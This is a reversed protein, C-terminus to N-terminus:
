KFYETVNLLSDIDKRGEKHSSLIESDQTRSREEKQHSSSKPTRIMRIILLTILKMIKMIKWYILSIMLEIM